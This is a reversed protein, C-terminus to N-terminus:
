KALKRGKGKLVALNADRRDLVIMGYIEKSDLMERLINIKFDKDCRYIRTNIPIPPEISWVRLDIQGTSSAVNGAYAALGHEPTRKFLRLHQIMRELADIVNKRTATSKINTATGQEQSLHNIIKNMDYGTPILVSVFETHRGRYQELDKIFKKLDHRQKETLSM